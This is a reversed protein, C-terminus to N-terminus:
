RATPGTSGSAGCTALTASRLPPHPARRPDPENCYLQWHVVWLVRSRRAAALLEDWRAVIGEPHVNEPIGIEGLYVSGSGWPGTTRACRRITGLARQLTTSDSMADYCSYSVLDVEVTPLVHETVTPIGKWADLVRNVEVAHVVRLRDNPRARARGRVVGEQRAALRRAYRACRACWDPPPPDWPEGVGRLQWDGEWNQLVITLERRGHEAFLHGVLEEWEAAIRAYFDPGHDANWGRESPSHTELFLTTFPRAFLERWYASSALDVLTRMEPWRSNWPYDAAARQPEFWFKGVTTGLALMQDAGELLNPRDTLHYRGDVLTTGLWRRHFDPRTSACPAELERSAPEAGGALLTGTAAATLGLFERRNLPSM